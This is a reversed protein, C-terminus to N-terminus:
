GWFGESNPAFRPSPARTGAAQSLFGIFGSLLLLYLCVSGSCRGVFLAFKTTTWQSAVLGTFGINVTIELTLLGTSTPRRISFASTTPDKHYTWYWCSSWTM